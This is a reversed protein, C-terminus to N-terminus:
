AAKVWDWADQLRDSPFTRIMGAILFAAFTICLAVWRPGGVVAIKEFDARHRLGFTADDWAATLDWGSFQDDMYLIVRLRSYEALLQELRPILVKKYDADTLTGTARIGIVNGKSEPMFEIM